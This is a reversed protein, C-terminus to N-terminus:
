LREFEDTVDVGTKLDIIRQNRSGRMKLTIDREAEIFPGDILYDAESLVENLPAYDKNILDEYLYGTWIYVKTDPYKEKVTRVLLETLVINNDWLPEGGMICFDRDVNNAKLSHLINELEQETFPRGSRPDQAEPNHCGKCKIPCGQVFVSLCVGPAASFDNKIIGAIKMM